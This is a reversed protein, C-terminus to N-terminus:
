RRRVKVIVTAIVAMLILLIIFLPFYRLFKGIGSPDFVDAWVVFSNEQAADNTSVATVRILATEGRWATGPVQVVLLAASEQDTGLTLRFDDVEMRGSADLQMWARWRPPLSANFRYTDPFDGVNTVKIRFTGVGAPDVPLVEPVARVAMGYRLDQVTVFLDDLWWGGDRTQNQGYVGWRLQVTMGPTAGNATLNAYAKEWTLRTGAWVLPVGGRGLVRVWAGPGLRMEVFGEDTEPAQTSNQITQGTLAVKHQFSLYLTATTVSILPSTLYGFGGAGGGGYWGYRWARVPSFADYAADGPAVMEWHLDGAADASWGLSAAEVDERLRFDSVAIHSTRDNNEPLEDAPLVAEVHLIYNGYAPARFTWTLTVSGQPPLSPVTHTLTEQIASANFTNRYVTLIVPLGTQARAGANGVTARVTGDTNLPLGSPRELSVLVVDDDVDRSIDVLITAGPSGIRRVKWGTPLNGYGNSNPISEPTFGSEGTNVWPDTDQTPSDGSQREDAEELDLLRHTEDSNESLTEDVHWILVGAGPLERDFGITNRYEVLFYEEPGGVRRVSLKYVSGNRSSELPQVTQAYLADDTDIGVELPRLWGLEAKGWASFHAPSTGRANFPGNWSGSAMVDWDGAGPSSGDTDYLDPLGLDHGFEHVYVGLPSSEAAMIYGYVEKGDVLLQQDGPIGPDADAVAWRHSWIRGPTDQGSFSEQGDGAHILFLHDVQGDADQDFQAYDVVANAARVADTVLRYVPGNADDTGQASDTGYEAMPGVNVWDVVTAQILLQNYSVESYYTRMSPTTVSNVKADIDGRTESPVPDSPGTFRALLVLVRATGIADRTPPGLLGPDPISIFPPTPWVLPDPHTLQPGRIIKPVFGVPDPEGSGGPLASMLFPLLLVAPLVAAVLKRM